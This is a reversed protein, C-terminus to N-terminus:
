NQWNAYISGDNVSTTLPATIARWKRRGRMYREVTVNTAGTLNAGNTGGIAGIAGSGSLTSKITVPRGGLNATGTITLTVGPNITLNANEALVLSGAAGITYSVNIAPTGGDVYLADSAAPAVAPHWNTAVNWNGTNAVWVKKGTAATGAWRAYLSLSSTLTYSSDAAYFTGLGDAQTNWGLFIRGSKLLSGANALKVSEGSVFNTTTPATGSTHTNGIYTIQYCTGVLLTGNSYSISYNSLGTGSISDSNPVIAYTGALAQSAAGTSIFGISTVGDGSLFSGSTITFENGTFSLTNGTCKTANNAKLVISIPTINASLTPQTLSYNGADAGSITYGTTSISKGSGANKDAFTFTPTGGITVVDGSVRGSLVPTGTASASTTGDYTKNVGTLGTITLGKATINASLTPQTLSYNSADAGSLTYGTTSISKSTGVNKDAFTFTPTGGLTVADSGVVGSLAATGTASATTNGDYVKNVGTLGTITLGKATINASLTPQTLSYNGADAGSLTYGTTSVSKSTGVNKDAFTFTPTGGLTVADSAVVGSLAATGTASATTNGDYVKNVGSLGTITLGKATINASLTPQTLSYNGADAGSLAYGTTSISKGTGVDATAFTFEPTGSLSFVDGSVIGSLAATGTASATTNGDYVKNVGTLGTITLGKATITGVTGTANGSITYNSADAGGLTLPSSVTVTKGTGANKTDYSGTTNTVTVNESGVLGSLSYNASTLTAGTTGDYVKSVTGTLSATLAIKNITLTVATRSASVCGTTTNRAEAYFTYTGSNVATPLYTTSNSSLASGSTADAYWDITQGSGPTAAITTANTAGDYTKSNNGSSPALPNSTNTVNVSNSTATCNTTANTAIVYYGDGAPLSSWTLGSGTGAKASQVVADSSNYLQYNVGVVSTTSTITGNGGPSTCISSGTLVLATTSNVTVQPTNTMQLPSPSCTAASNTALVNFTTAQTLNGTPLNIMGGTGAVASGIETNDANNRLQYSVGIESSAVTINTSSGSCVSASSAAVTKNSPTICTVNGNLTFDDLRFTGGTGSITSLSLVITVQGTLKSITNSVNTQSIAAGTTPVTGSGVSTGNITMSWNQPGNNSRVRWFSFSTVSLEYGSSVNFTLTYSYNSSGSNSVSLSTGSNGASATFNTNLSNTWSSSSLNEDFTNPATTYPPAQTSASTFNHLYINVPVFSVTFTTSTASTLSGSTATLTRGTQTANATHVINSFTALGSSPTASLPSGTLTGTSTISVNTVYDLDPNGNADEAEVTVSPSMTATINVNSPQQVFALKTAVVAIVNSTTSSNIASFSSASSSTGDTATTINANTLSFVFKKGDDTIGLTTKLSLRISLTKSQGDPISLTLGSFTINNTPNGVTGTALLTSGDFLAVTLISTTWSTVNSSANATLVIQSVKTPLADNDNLGSGGDRITFQWVQTGTSSTLPAATNILSSITASESSSVAVADTAASPTSANATPITGGTYYNTTVANTGDWNFPILLYNYTVDSSLSTSTSTTASTTTIVSNVVAGNPGVANGAAPATGDSPYDGSVFASSKRLILYGSSSITSSASFGLNISTASAVTATFSNAHATPEASLTYQTPLSAAAAYNATSGSGNYEYVDFSYSAGANLGTVTVSNGSGNYVVIRGSGTIGNTNDSFSASNVTYGTGDAPATASTGSTRAVVIRNAGDGNTWSISISNNTRSVFTVASAATPQPALYAVSINFASGAASTTNAVRVLYTTGSTGNFTMTESSASSTAASGGTVYGTANSPCSSFAYVDYDVSATNTVSVTYIGTQAATFSYWVDSYATFPENLLTTYTANVTTGSVAAAGVTLSTPSACLDNAPPPAPINFTNSTVGTLGSSSFSITAGTVASASTATLNTFTATGSVGARSTTGGITWTGAGVAAVVTATSSTTNGYQDQIAIVPQTALSGGNSTPAVPQTTIGLKSAAGVGITQTVTANSYGTALVAISKSGSSQLLTSASPTFAIQGASVSYASADLATGGVTIGTIASRWASNDAFTVNFAGDVTASGAATITPPTLAASVSGRVIINDLRFDGSSNGGWGYIRFTISSLSTYSAGSLSIPSITTASTTVTGTALDSAYDGVSSRVAYNTAGAGSRFVDMVFDTPTILFGSNATITFELYRSSSSFTLGWSASGSFANASNSNQSIGTLSINGFTVNSAVGTAALTGPTGAFAYTGIQPAPINFNNSTVSLAGSTFTINAGTVANSSTATLGSFTAVGSSANVSTTGGLTWSGSGVAASVSASSGTLTNNYQDRITVVPQTALAGGNTTPAVPQTSVSLNQAVGAAISQAITADNYNFTTASIVITKSGASQLLASQSPDFTIEGETATNYASTPLTSGGVTISSITTRWNADDTFTIKFTNDVTAGTAATLTPPTLGTLSSVTLILEGNVVSLASTTNSATGSGNITLSGPTGSVGTASGGKVILKYTGVALAATTTVTVPSSNLALAGASSGTVTLPATAGGGYATFFLGGASLTLDKASAVTVTSTTNSGTASTRLSQSSGLSLASTLGSVNFTAGSGIIIQPSSAISGSGSLALTGASITTNGSYTNPGSLTLVGAGSGTKTLNRSAGSIISSITIGGSSEIRVINETANGLAIGMTQTGGSVADQFTLTNSNNNRLITNSVGNVVVGSITLNGSAGATTSSNGITVSASAASALEVAGVIQNKAGNNTSGSNLNISCINGNPANTGFQAVQSSTPFSGGTWNGGTLWTSSSTSSWLISTANPISVVINGSTTSTLTGDTASITYTDASSFQVSAFTAVGAVAAVAGNGSIAGAGSVKSISVNSTYADDVSNNSRRAEVTFSSLNTAVSGTAPVSVLVLSTAQTLTTISSTNSNASAASAANIARVRFYYLTNYNLGTVSQSTGSVTLDNYGTVFSSFDSAVSVDLKYSSAGTVSGWTATFSKSGVTTPTTTTPATCLTYFSTSPPSTTNYCTGTTNFEYATLTYQTGASLNSISLNGTATSVGAATGNYIVINGTGTTTTGTFSGTASPTYTTGSTPDVSSTATLRAVVIVGGTGNGRTFSYNSGSTSTSSLSITGAQTSPATCGSTTAQNNPNNTATTLNFVSTAGSGEYECVMVRYTTGASLNSLTVGATHTGTNNYVCYWGTSAIQTGKTSWDTSATYTTGNVPAANGTSAQAVFVARRGSSGNSGDTWNLTFGTNTVSSFTVSSAQTPAVVNLSQIRVGRGSTISNSFRFKTTTTFGGSPAPIVIPGGTIYTSSSPTASTYSTALATFTSGTASSIEVKLSPNSGTGFTAVNVNLVVYSYASLDYNGSTLLDSPNGADLLLYSTQDIPNPTINNTATWGLNTYSATTNTYSFITTQGWGTTTILLFFITLLTSLYTLLQQNNTTPQQNNRNSFLGVLLKYGIVLLSKESEVKLKLSEVEFNQSKGKSKSVLNM